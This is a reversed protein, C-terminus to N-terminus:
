KGPKKIFKEQFEGMEWRLKFLLCIPNNFSRLNYNIICNCYCIEFIIINLLPKEISIKLLRM